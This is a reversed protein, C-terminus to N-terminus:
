QILLFERGVHTGLQAPAFALSSTRTQVAGQHLLLSAAMFFLVVRDRSEGCAPNALDNRM